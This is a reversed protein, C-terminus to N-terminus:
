ARIVTVDRGGPTTARSALTREEVPELNSRRDFIVLWGTALGLGALYRDLQALGKALPDPRGDRWVKLELALVDPGRRLCLDMRGSGIAYERVLTGSGNVVRHLFAMLVLHPAIEHYPTTRLLPEGHQRWFDLFADLLASADIRGRADLWTPGIQPLSAVPASTLVRAVVEQYIPNAMVLGGGASDRVLGLDIAFRRDDEPVEGLPDGALMPEIIRRIRPDRLRDTLSAIHVDRRAVVIEKASDVDAVTVPKTVDTVLTEILEAGIANVLWPQGQTLEFVRDVAGPEFRQGTDDTHQQYLEVVEDRTFDRLTFSRVMINFPSPTGARDHNSLLIRYDHVDRLGILALSWPFREPRDIYGEQLQRLVSILVEDRLSDIEDLFIVLPRPSAKAWAQLAAGIRAGPPADPWPPPQLEAPLQSDAKRRWSDLIALEAVGPDSTFDAGTLMSVLLAAYRGEATLERALALLATTKGIQRPAHLVFYGKQDIVRRVEPLRRMPPVMYHDAPNCVGGTNFWRPM